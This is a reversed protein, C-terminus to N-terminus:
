SPFCTVQLSSWRKTLKYSQKEEEEEERGGKGERGRPFVVVVLLNVFKRRVCARM